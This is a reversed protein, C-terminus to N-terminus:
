GGECVCMCKSMTGREVCVCVASFAGMLGCFRGFLVLGGDILVGACVCLM